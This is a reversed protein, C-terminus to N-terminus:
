TLRLEKQSNYLASNPIHLSRQDKTARWLSSTKARYNRIETGTWGPWAPLAYSTTPVSRYKPFDSPLASASRVKGQAFAPQQLCVYSVDASIGSACAAGHSSARPSAGPLESCCDATVTSSVLQPVETTASSYSRPQLLFCSGPAHPSQHPM